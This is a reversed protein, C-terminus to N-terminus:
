ALKSTANVNTAWPEFTQVSTPRAIFFGQAFEIGLDGLKDLVKKSEVREAITAIGMARGVQSIARVM